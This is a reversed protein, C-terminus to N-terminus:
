LRHKLVGIINVSGGEVVTVTNARREVTSHLTCNCNFPGPEPDCPAPSLFLNGTGTRTRDAYSLKRPV